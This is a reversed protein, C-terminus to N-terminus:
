QPYRKYPFRVEEEKGKQGIMVFVVMEKDSTREFTMGDFYVRNGDVKVLPFDITKDKEEWGKLDGHFHKLRLMLTGAEETITVLEYFRVKGDSVLKFSGMMSGGLAPTWVEETIGGFADGRWHGALWAIDNLTAAPSKGTGLTMTNVQQSHSRISLLLFLIFLTYKM